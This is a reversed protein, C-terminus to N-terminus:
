PQLKGFNPFRVGSNRSIHTKRAKGAMYFGGRQKSVAAVLVLVEVALLILKKKSMPAKKGKKKTNQEKEM